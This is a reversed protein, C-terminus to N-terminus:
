SIEKTIEVNKKTIMSPEGKKIVNEGEVVAEVALPYPNEELQELEELITQVRRVGDRRAQRVDVRGEPDVTDLALLEKTLLEELLLYKKDNKRGNFCKVEQELRSVREVIQQVKMLGPHVPPSSEAEVKINQIESPDTTIEPAEPEPSMQVPIDEVHPQSQEPKQPLPFHQESHEFHQPQPSAAPPIPQFHQPHHSEPQQNYQQHQPPPQPFPQSQQPPPQQFPKTQQPPPQPFPQPHQFPQSQQPSLPQFSQAQQILPQPFMQPQQPPPQQFQHPQQSMHGDPETYTSPSPPMNDPKQQVNQQEQEIMQPPERMLVNHQVQPREGMVQTMIPPQNKIHPTHHFSSADRHQPFVVPSARERPPQMGPTYGPWEETQLRHYPQHHEPYSVRQSYVSPNLQSQMQGGGSEHIVPIPIYGAQFSTSSPRSPQQHPVTHVEATQTVPSGVPETSCSESPGHLPSRPRCQRSPTPSPTRDETRISQAAAPQIYSYCPHQQHQHRMEAGDHFVPIPVYGPRLIPHKMERVFTKQTDQPSPEPPINPGNASVERVKKTDHRPDNWTTRRSNHDVFFPWGTQPDIKVEWGLPLPESDNSAMAVIPSHTKMANMNTVSAFQSM